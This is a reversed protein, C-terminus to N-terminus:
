QNALIQASIEAFKQNIYLDPDRAYTVATHVDDSNSINTTGHYAHLRSYDALEETPIDTEIPTALVYQLQINNQALFAKFEEVTSATSSKIRFYARADNNFFGEETM